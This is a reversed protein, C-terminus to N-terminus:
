LMWSDLKGDQDAGLWGLEARHSQIINTMKLWEIAHKALLNTALNPVTPVDLCQRLDSDGFELWWIDYNQNSQGVQWKKGLRTLYSLKIQDLFM